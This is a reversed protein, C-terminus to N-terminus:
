MDERYANKRSEKTSFRLKALIFGMNQLLRGGAVQM